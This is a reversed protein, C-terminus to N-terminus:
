KQTVGECPGFLRKKAHQCIPGPIGSTVSIMAQNVSSRSIGQEFNEVGNMSTVTSLVCLDQSLTLM